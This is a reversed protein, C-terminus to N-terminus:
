HACCCLPDSNQFYPHQVSNEREQPVGDGLAFREPPQRVDDRGSEGATSEPHDPHKLPPKQVAPDCYEENSNDQCHKGSAKCDPSSSLPCVAKLVALVGRRGCFLQAAADEGYPGASFGAGRVLLRPSRRSYQAKELSERGSRTGGPDGGLDHVQGPKHGWLDADISRRRPWFGRGHEGVSFRRNHSVSEATCWADRIARQVPSACGCSLYAGGNIDEDHNVMVVAEGSLAFIPTVIFRRAYEVDFSIGKGSAIITNAAAGSKIGQNSIFTGGFIGGFENKEDQAVASAGLTTVVMLVAVWLRKGFM